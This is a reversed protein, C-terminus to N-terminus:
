YRRSTFCCEVYDDGTRQRERRHSVVTCNVGRRSAVNSPTVGGHAAERPPEAANFSNGITTADKSASLVLARRYRVIVCRM